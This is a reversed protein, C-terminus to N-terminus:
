TKIVNVSESMDVIISVEGIVVQPLFVIEHVEDVTLKVAAVDHGHHCVDLSVEEEGDKVAVFDFHLRADRAKPRFANGEVLLRYVNLRLLYEAFAVGYHNGEGERLM